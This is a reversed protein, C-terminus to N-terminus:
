FHLEQWGELAQARRGELLPRSALRPIDRKIACHVAKYIAPPFYEPCCGPTNNFELVWPRLDEDVMVDIGVVVRGNPFAQHHLATRWARLCAEVAKASAQLIEDAGPVSSLLRVLKQAEAPQLHLNTHQRESNIQEPSWPDRALKIHVTTFLFAQLLDTPDGLGQVGEAPGKRAVIVVHLRLDFKRGSVLLPRGIHQQLVFGETTCRGESLRVCADANAKCYNAGSWGSKLFWPLDRDERKKADGGSGPYCGPLPLCAGSHVFYTPPVPPHSIKDADQPWHTILALLTKDCLWWVAPVQNALRDRAEKSEFEYWDDANWGKQGRPQSRALLCGLLAIGALLYLSGVSEM